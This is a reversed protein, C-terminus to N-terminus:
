PHTQDRLLDLQKKLESAKKFDEIELAKAYNLKLIKEKEIPNNELLERAYRKPRKGVHTKAGHYPYVMQEVRDSFHKYCEECGFRGNKDFADLTLGCSCPGIPSEASIFELLDQVTTIKTINMIDAETKDLGKCYIAGCTECMDFSEVKDNNIETVHYAVYTVKNCFFCKQLRM